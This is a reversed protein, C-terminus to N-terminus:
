FATLISFLVFVLSDSRICVKLRYIEKDEDIDKLLDFEKEHEDDGNNM